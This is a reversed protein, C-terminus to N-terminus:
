EEGDFWDINDDVPSLEIADLWTINAKKFEKDNAILSVTAQLDSECEDILHEPVKFLSVKYPESKEAVVFWYRFGKIQPYKEQLLQSYWKLQKFYGLDQAKYFFKKKNASLATKLDVLDCIGDKDIRYADIKGYRCDFHEGLTNDPIQIIEQMIFNKEIDKWIDTDQVAIAVAMINQYEDEKIVNKGQAEQDAKWERAEKSRFDDYPAIITNQFKDMETLISDVERGVMFSKTDKKAVEGSIVSRYFYNPCLDYLKIKSQSLGKNNLEYYNQENIM